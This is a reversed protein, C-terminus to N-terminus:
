QPHERKFTLKHLNPNEFGFLSMMSLLLACSHRRAAVVERERERKTRRVKKLKSNEIENSQFITYLNTYTTPNKEEKM